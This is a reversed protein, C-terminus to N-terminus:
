RIEAKRACGICLTAEPLAALRAPAIAEGCSLCDGYSGADMRALAARVSAIEKLVLAEQGALADDDEKEVAAEGSDASVPVSLDAELHAARAELEALRAELLSRLAPDATM